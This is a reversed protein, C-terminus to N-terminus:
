QKIFKFLVKDQLYYRISDAVNPFYDNNLALPVFGDLGLPLVSTAFGQKLFANAYDNLSYDMVPINSYQAIYERWHSWRPQDTHCGVAAFYVGNPKLRTKIYQAHDDLSPLLYMVEHSFATDFYDTATLTDPLQFTVPIQQNREQAKDLSAQALDVGIAQKFPHQSYVNALFGGQNCGFDLLTKDVLHPAGALQIMRQWFPLHDDNMLDEEADTTTWTQLNNTDIAHTNTPM